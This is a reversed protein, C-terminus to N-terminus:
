YAFNALCLLSIVIVTGVAMLLAVDRKPKKGGAATFGNNNWAGALFLSGGQAVALGLLVGEWGRGATVTPLLGRLFGVGPEITQAERIAWLHSFNDAIATANRAVFVCILILGLLSLMKASTFINQIWKGLKVGRTNLYTLFIIM